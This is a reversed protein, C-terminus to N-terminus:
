NTPAHTAEESEMESLAERLEAIAKSRREENGKEISAAMANFIAAYNRNLYDVFAAKVVEVDDFGIANSCGNNGYYGKWADFSVHLQFASFRSDRCFGIGKKDCRSDKTAEHFSESVTRLQQVTRKVQKYDYVASM